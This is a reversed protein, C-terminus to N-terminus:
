GAAISVKGNSLESQIKQFTHKIHMTTAHIKGIGKFEVIACLYNKESSWRQITRLPWAKSDQLGPISIQSLVATPCVIRGRQNQKKM